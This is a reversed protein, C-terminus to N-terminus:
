PDPTGPGGEPGLDALQRKAYDLSVPAEAHHKDIELAAEFSAIAGTYLRRRRKPDGKGILLKALGIRHHLRADNADLEVARELEELEEGHRKLAHLMEALRSRVGATDRMHALEQMAYVADQRMGADWLADGLIRRAETNSGSLRIARDAAVRADDPRGLSLLVRAVDAHAASSEPDLEAAKRYAGLAGNRKGLDRLVHGRQARYQPNAGDRRIAEDYKELAEENRGQRHLNEGERAIERTRHADWALLGAAAAVAGAILWAVM